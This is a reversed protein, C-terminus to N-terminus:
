TNNEASTSGENSPDQLLKNLDLGEFKNKNASNSAHALFLEKLFGLEKTLTKVKEELITNENRLENVRTLTEQTKQKSKVRSRKVALNNRDRKKRYEDSDEGSEASDKKSKPRRPM